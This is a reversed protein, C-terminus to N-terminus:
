RGEWSLVGEDLVGLNIATVQVIASITGTVTSDDLGYGSHQMIENITKLALKSFDHRFNNSTYDIIM